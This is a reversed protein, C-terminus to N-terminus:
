SVRLVQPTIIGFDHLAPEITIGFIAQYLNSDGICCDESKRQDAQSRLQKTM